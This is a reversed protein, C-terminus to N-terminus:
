RYYNCNQDMKKINQKEILVSMKFKMNYVFVLYESFYKKITKQIKLKITLFYFWFYFLFFSKESYRPCLSGKLSKCKRATTKGDRICVLICKESSCFGKSDKKTKKLIRKIKETLLWGHVIDYRYTPPAPTNISRSSDTEFINAWLINLINCSCKVQLCM